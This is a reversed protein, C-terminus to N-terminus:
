EFQLTIKDKDIKHSKLNNGLANQHEVETCVAELDSDCDTRFIEKQIM